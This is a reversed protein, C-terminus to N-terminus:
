LHSRIAIDLSAQDNRILAPEGTVFVRGLSGTELDFTTHIDFNSQSLGMTTTLELCNSNFNKLAVAGFEGDPIANCISDIMCQFLEPLSHLRQNLLDTLQQLKILQQQNRGLSLVVRNRTAEAERVAQNLRSNDKLVQEIMVLHKIKEDNKEKSFDCFSKRSKGLYIVLDKSRLDYIKQLGPPLIFDDDQNSENWVRYSDEIRDMLRRIERDESCWQHLLNWKEILGEHAIEVWLGTIDTVILRSGIITELSSELITEQGESGLEILDQKLQCQRTDRGDESTRVLKLFIIKTWYKESDNLKNFLETAYHNLIGSVGGLIGFEEVELQHKLTSKVEWFQFLMLELLPLCNKEQKLDQLILDLLGAEFSYGQMM